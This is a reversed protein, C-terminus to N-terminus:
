SETGQPEYGPRRRDSPQVIGRNAIDENERAKASLERRMEETVPPGSTIDMSGPPSPTEWVGAGREAPRQQVRTEGSMRQPVGVAGDMPGSLTQLEHGEETENYIREHESRDSDHQDNSHSAFWSKIRLRFTRLSSFM